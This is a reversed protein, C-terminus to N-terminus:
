ISNINVIQADLINVASEIIPNDKFISKDEDLRKKTQSHKQRPFGKPGSDVVKIDLTQGSHRKIADQILKKNEEREIAAKYFTPNTEFRLYLSSNDIHSFEALCLCSYLSQKSDKIDELVKSWLSDSGMQNISEEQIIDQTTISPPAQASAKAYRERLREEIQRLDRYIIALDPDDMTKMIKIFTLELLVEGQTPFRRIKELVDELHGIAKMMQHISLDKSHAELTSKHKPDFVDVLDAQGYKVLLLNRFHQLCSKVFESIDKGSAAVDTIVELLSQLDRSILSRSIRFLLDEQVIGLVEMTGELTIKGNCFTIVQELLNEGDRLSGNAHRSILDLVWEGEVEIGEGEVIKALVEKIAKPTIKRFDFRQCRSLITEPVKHPSTTAFIFVVSEPPEEITKLLANFAPETLMHVEDIIYVKYRLRAPHFKVQERLTRVEDIGRNSAGDIELVDM